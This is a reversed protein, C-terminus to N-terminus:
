IQVEVELAPVRYSLPPRQTAAVVDELDKGERLMRVLYSHPVIEEQERSDIEGYEMGARVFNAGSDYTGGRLWDLDLELGPFVAMWQEMDLGAPKHYPAGEDTIRLRGGLQLVKMAPQSDMIAKPIAHAGVNVRM